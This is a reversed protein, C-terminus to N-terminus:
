PKVRIVGSKLREFASDINPRSVDIGISQRGLAEAVV